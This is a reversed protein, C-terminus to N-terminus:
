VLSCLGERRPANRVGTGRVCAPHVTRRTRRTKGAGATFRHGRMCHRNVLGSVARHDTGITLRSLGISSAHVCAVLKSRCLHRTIVVARTIAFKLGHTTRRRLASAAFPTTPAGGLPHAAVSDVAFATTGYDRLLGQTRTGAGLQRTLRTGVRIAGNSASPILFMTAIHCSTRARFTRVRHRHRM